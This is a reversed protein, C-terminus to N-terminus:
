EIGVIRIQFNLDEGVLPHNLDITVAAPTIDTITAPISRGADDSLSIVMGQQPKFDQPLSSLPFAKILRDDKQGYADEAKILIKKEENLTMGLVAQEFGPILQGSGVVFELPENETSKDFISGNALTGVYQVKVKDNKKVASM